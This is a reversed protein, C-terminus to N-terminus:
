GTTMTQEFELDDHSHKTHHENEMDECVSCVANLLESIKDEPVLINAVGLSLIRFTEARDAKPLFRIKGTQQLVGTTEQSMEYGKIIKTVQNLIPNPVRIQTTRYPKCPRAM